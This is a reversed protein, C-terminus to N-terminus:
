AWPPRRWRGHGRRRLEVELAGEGGGDDEEGEDAGCGGGGGYAQQEARRAGSRGKMPGAARGGQPM